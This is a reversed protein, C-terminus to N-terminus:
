PTASAPALLAPQPPNASEILSRAQNMLVHAIIWDIWGNDLPGNELRALEKGAIQRGRALAAGAKVPQNLHHTAMALVMCAEVDRSPQEGEKALVKEMWEVSSAFRAQRYEALGKCFHLWSQGGDTKDLRIAADAWRSETSLDAGPLSVLLCDKAMRDALSPENTIAGFRTRIRDCLSHYAELQGSQVLLCALSHYDQHNSPELQIVKSYDAVADTWRGLRARFNGRARLVRVDPPQGPAEQLTEAETFKREAILIEILLDSAEAEGPRIKGSRKKQIELAQRAMAEAEPLKSEDNLVDALSILASAVRLHENGFTQKWIALSERAALEAEALKGGQALYLQCLGALVWGVKWHRDGPLERAMALAELYMAEAERWRGEGKLTAAVSVLSEVVLVHKNGLV